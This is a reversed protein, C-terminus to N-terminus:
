NGSHKFAWQAASVVVSHTTFNSYTNTATNSYRCAMCSCVAFLAPRVAAYLLCHLGYLQMCCVTCAACSCVHFLAPRVAAYLL